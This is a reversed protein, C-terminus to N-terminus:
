LTAWPGAANSDVPLQNFHLIEREVQVKQIWIQMKLLIELHNMHLNFNSFCPDSTGLSDRSTM